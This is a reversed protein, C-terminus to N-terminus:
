PCRPVWGCVPNGFSATSSETPAESRIMSLGVQAIPYALREREMWQRRVIVAVCVMSIYLSLLFIGWWTLPEVWSSYPIQETTGSLGEYFLRSGTGDDVM